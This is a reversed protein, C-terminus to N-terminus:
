FILDVLDVVCAIGYGQGTHGDTDLSITKSNEFILHPGVYFEYSTAPDV